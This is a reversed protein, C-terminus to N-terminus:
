ADPVDSPHPATTGLAEDADALPLLTVQADVVDLIAKDSLANIRPDSPDTFPGYIAISTVQWGIPKPLVIM